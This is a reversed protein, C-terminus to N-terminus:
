SEAFHMSTNFVQNTRNYILLHILSSLRYTEKKKDIDIIFM